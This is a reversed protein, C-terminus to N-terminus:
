DISKRHTVWRFDRCLTCEAGKFTRAAVLDGNLHWDLWDLEIKTAEGSPESFSGGHGIGPQDAVFVPVNQIHEFDDLGNLEAMDQPGGLIYLVPVHLKVLDAKNMRNMLAAMKGLPNNPANGDMPHIFIGSDEMVLLKARPDLSAQMAILGGCSHGAFAVRSADIKGYYPSDKRANEALIWDLAAIMKESTASNAPDPPPAPHQGDVPPQPPAKPGSLIHGPAIAVYGHSAIETLHFRASTADLGCGGNGWIYIGLKGTVSSLDAPQYVLDDMSNPAMAYTAPYPGHGQIDPMKRVAEFLAGRAAAKRDLASGTDSGRMFDPQGGPPPAAPATAQAM